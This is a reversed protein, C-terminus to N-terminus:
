SASNRRSGCTAPARNMFPTVGSAGPTDEAIFEGNGNVNASGRQYLAPGIKILKFATAQAPNEGAKFYKVEVRSFTTVPSEGASYTSKGNSISVTYYPTPYVYSEFVNRQKPISAYSREWEIIGGGIDRFNDEDILLLDSRTPHAVGLALPTFSSLLQWFRQRLIITAKDGEKSFPYESIPLGTAKATAFNGDYKVGAALTTVFRTSTTGGAFAALAGPAYVNGFSNTAGTPNYPGAWNEGHVGQEPTRPPSYLTDSSLYKLPDGPLSASLFQRITAPDDYNVTFRKTWYYPTGGAAASVLPDPVISLFGPVAALNEKLKAAQDADGLYYTLELNVYHAM